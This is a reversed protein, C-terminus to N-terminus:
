FFREGRLGYHKEELFLWHFFLFLLFTGGGVLLVPSSSEIAKAVEPDSSFTAGLAGLIGLHPLAAWVVLLPLLGRVVFVSIFMGWGLFWRTASPSATSLVQANIVANDISSVSEFFFLGLIIFAWSAIHM